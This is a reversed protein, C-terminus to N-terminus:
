YRLQRDNTRFRRSLSPHAVTRVGRQTTAEINRRATEIGIGWRTALTTPDITRRYRTRTTALTSHSALFPADSLYISIPSQDIPSGRPVMDCRSITRGDGTAHPLGMLGNANAEQAAFNPSSPDWQPTEYTLEYRDTAADFESLSPRRTPFYSIIGHLDLPIVYDDHDPTPIVIAHQNDERDSPDTLFRPTDRVKVDNVRLQMPTLLNNCMTPVHIAQHVILIVTAGDRPDDYALAASVTRLDRKTGMTPDYGTVDVPRDFDQIILAHKGVVCADAHSDLETRSGSDMNSPESTLQGLRVVQVFREPM